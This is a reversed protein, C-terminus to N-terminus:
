ECSQDCNQRLNNITEQLQSQTLGSNNNFADTEHLGSWVIAEYQSDTFSNGHFDKLSNVMDNFFVNAM